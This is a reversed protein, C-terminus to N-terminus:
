SKFIILKGNSGAVIVTFPYLLFVFSRTAGSSHNNKATILRKFRFLDKNISTIFINFQFFYNYRLIYLGKSGLGSDQLVLCSM